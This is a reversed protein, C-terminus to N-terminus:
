SAVPLKKLQLEVITTSVDFIEALKAPPLYSVPELLNLPALLNIAFENAEDEIEDDTTFLGQRKPLVKYESEKHLVCHGLEHAATFRQRKQTDDKNIYIEQDEFDVFGSYDDKHDKFDAIFVDMTTHERIVEYVPIPPYTFVETFKDAKGQIELRKAESIAM